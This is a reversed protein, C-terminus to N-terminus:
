FRTQATVKDFLVAARADIKAAQDRMLIGNDGVAGKLKRLLAKEKSTHAYRSLEAISLVTYDQNVSVKERSPVVATSPRSTNVGVNKFRLDPHWSQSDAPWDGYYRNDIDVNKPTRHLKAFGQETRKVDFFTDVDHLDDRPVEAVEVVVGEHDVFIDGLQLSKADIEDYDVSHWRSNEVCETVRWGANAHYRVHFTADLEGDLGLDADSSPSLSPLAELKAKRYADIADLAKARNAFPEPFADNRYDRAHGLPMGRWGIVQASDM